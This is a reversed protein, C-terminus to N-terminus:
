KENFFFCFFGALIKVKLIQLFYESANQAMTNNHTSSLLSADFAAAMSDIATDGVKSDLKPEAEGTAMGVFIVSNNLSHDSDSTEVKLQRPKVKPQSPGCQEEPDDKPELKEKSSKVEPWLGVFIVSDNQDDGTVHFDMEDSTSLSTERIMENLIDTPENGEDIKLESANVHSEESKPMSQDCSVAIMENSIKTIEDGEDVINERSEDSSLMSQDSSVVITEDSTNITYNEDITKEDSSSMSEDFNQDVM